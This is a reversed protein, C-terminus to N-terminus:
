HRFDKFLSMLEALELKSESKGGDHISKAMALKREQLQSIREEVTEEILFRYVEVPKTQGIRHVRQIAQEEVAPNWWPDLFFVVSACILNLGVGGAKLSILLISHSSDERFSRLVKERARQSLNGDLRLYTFGAQKLPIQIIDLMSTWQSFVLAKIAKDKNRLHELEELLRATKTSHKWHQEIDIKVSPVPTPITTLNHVSFITRCIACTANGKATFLQM